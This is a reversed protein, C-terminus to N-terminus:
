LWKRGCTLYVLHRILGARPRFSLSENHSIPLLFYIGQLPHRGFVIGGSEDDGTERVKGPAVSGLSSM